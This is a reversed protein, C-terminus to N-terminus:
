DKNDEAEQEVWVSVSGAKVQFSGWGKENLTVTEPCHGLFDYYTKGAHLQGLEMDKFGDEGNTMIVAMAHPHEEDGLRTWGITNAHDFYDVQDGHAYDRRLILLPDIQEQM